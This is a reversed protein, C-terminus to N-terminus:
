QVDATPTLVGTALNFEWRKSTEDFLSIRDPTDWTVGGFSPTESELLLTPKLGPLDLRVVYSKGLLPCDSTTQLYVLAQSDPAWAIPGPMADPVAAQTHAIEGQNVDWVM